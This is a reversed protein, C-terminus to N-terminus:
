AKERLHTDIYVLADNVTRIKEADEDPIDVDFAEELSMILEVTGLSDAGLDNIFNAEPTVQATDVGLQESVLAQIKSLITDKDM